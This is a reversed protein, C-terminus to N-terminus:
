TTVAVSSTERRHELPENESARQKQEHDKTTDEKKEGRAERKREKIKRGRVRQQVGARVHVQTAATENQLTKSRKQGEEGRNVKGHRQVHGENVTVHVTRRTGEVNQNRAGGSGEGPGYQGKKIFYTVFAENYCTKDIHCM